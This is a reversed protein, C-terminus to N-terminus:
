LVPEEQTGRMYLFSKCHITSTKFMKFNKFDKEKIMISKPMDVRKKKKKRKNRKPTNAFRCIFNYEVHVCM